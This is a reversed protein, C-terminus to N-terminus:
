IQSDTYCRHFQNQDSQKKSSKSPTQELANLFQQSNETSILPSHSFTSRRALCPPLTLAVDSPQRSVDGLTTTSWQTTSAFSTSFRNTGLLFDKLDETSAMPQSKQVVSKEFSHILTTPHSFNRTSASWVSSKLAKLYAAYEQPPPPPPPPPISSDSPMNFPVILHLWVTVRVDKDHGFLKSLCSINMDSAMILLALCHFMITIYPM